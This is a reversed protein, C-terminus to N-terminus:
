RVVSRQAHASAHIRTENHTTALPPTRTTAHAPDRARPRTRTTAHANHRARPRTRRTAHAHYRARPLTGRTTAHRAHYRAARPLTGRTTAHRAHYRAARPLTGRTTAHRAHYRAARPLTRTIAPECMTAHANDSAHPRRHYRARPRARTTACPSTAHATITAHAQDRPKTAHVHECMSQYRARPRTRKNAHANDCARIPARTTTHAHECMTAHQTFMKHRSGNMVTVVTVTNCFMSGKCSAHLMILTKWWLVSM